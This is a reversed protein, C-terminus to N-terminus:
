LITTTKTMCQQAKLLERQIKSVLLKEYIHKEYNESSKIVPTIAGKVFEVLM